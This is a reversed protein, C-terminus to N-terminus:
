ELREGLLEGPNFEPVEVENGLGEVVTGTPMLFALQDYGRKIMRHLTPLDDPPPDTVTYAADVNDRITKFEVDDEAVKKGVGDLGAKVCALQYKLRRRFYTVRPDAPGKPEVVKRQGSSSGMMGIAGMMGGPSMDMDGMGDAFDEDDDELDEEMDDM